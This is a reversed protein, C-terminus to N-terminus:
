LSLLGWHRTRGSTYPISLFEGLRTEFGRGEPKYSLAKAVVRGCRLNFQLTKIYHVHENSFQLTHIYVPHPL